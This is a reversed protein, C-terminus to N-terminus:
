DLRLPTRGMSSSVYLAKIPVMKSKRTCNYTTAREDIQDPRAQVKFSYHCLQKWINLGSNWM